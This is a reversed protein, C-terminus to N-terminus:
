NSSINKTFLAQILHFVNAFTWYLVMGAPFDYFLFFFLLTMALLSLNQLNLGKKEETVSPSMKFTLLTVVSMIIPLLNFYEGLIPINFGFSFLHDPEALTKIWLFGSERLEFTAGLMHYLAILIPLQILVVLLPKLGAFPSVNHRKYLQLIQESQEGGKFTKKIENLEPLMKKQAEIFRNQSKQAKQGVPYLLIRVFLALLIISWGWNPVLYHITTLSHYLALCLWRMWSWLDSFLLSRLNESGAGLANYSKPGSFITFDWQIGEGSKLSTIPLKLSLVPLDHAFQENERDISLYNIYSNSFLLTDKTTQSENPLILLAFYRNHLGIWQLGNMDWPLIGSILSDPIYRYVDGKIAAVPEVFYYVSRPIQQESSGGGLGPGLTLLLSDEPLTIYDEGSNNSIIVSMNFHYPYSSEEFVQKLELGSNQIPYSYELKNISFQHLNDTALSDSHSAIDEGNLVGKIALHQSLIVGSRDFSLLSHWGNEENNGNTAVNWISTGAQQSNWQLHLSKSKLVVDNDDGGYYKTHGTGQFFYIFIAIFLLFIRLRLSIMLHHPNNKIKKALQIILIQPNGLEM